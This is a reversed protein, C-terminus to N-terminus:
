VDKLKGQYINKAMEDKDLFPYMDELSPTHFSGDTQMKSILKPQFDQDPDVVVECLFPGKVRLIKAIEGLSDVSDLRFYKLSFAEALRSFDPFEIGSSPDAGCYGRTQASFINNQTQKISHYGQNNLIFIKIDANNTNITQLEALNMMISGDGEICIVPRGSAAAGIAACIGYGMGSSGANTFIRQGAKVKLGQLGCVCAAGNALVIVHEGSTADSLDDLFSYVNLPLSENKFKDSHIPYKANIEKCWLLWPDFTRTLKHAYELLQAAFSKASMNFKEHIFGTKKSLEALDVSVGIKTANKAFNTWEYSVQRISLQCGILFILDCNQVVFNGGRNGITGPRGCALHHDDAILDHANWETVVPVSLKEALKIVDDKADSLRVEEGLMFVPSNSENLLKYIREVCETSLEHKQNSDVPVFSKRQRTAATDAILAGQVDLPIDLWVPGKRMAQCESFARNLHYYLEDVHSVTAFYKTFNRVLAGTDSEQFGLYRLPLNTSQLTTDSRMQGSVVFMPISDLWAGQVGTIANAVGPGSTVCVLAPKNLLRAYGEAAMASAQEHHNYTVNLDPSHGFSDNLHMAGGGTVSFCQTIGKEILFELILDSVKVLKKDTSM